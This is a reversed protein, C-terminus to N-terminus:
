SHRKRKKTKTWRSRLVPQASVSPMLIGQAACLTCLQQWLALPVWQRSPLSRRATSSAFPASAVLDFPGLLAVAPDLLPVCDSWSIYTAPDPNHGPRLLVQAGFLVTGDAPDTSYCHWERWWRACADSLSRDDPHRCYFDVTYTGSTRCASSAPELLSSDLNVAVLYWRPRLTGEPLYSIFFMRNRSASIRNYLV